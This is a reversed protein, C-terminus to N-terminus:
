IRVPQMSIKDTLKIPLNYLGPNIGETKAKKPLNILFSLCVHIVFIFATEATAAEPWAARSIHMHTWSLHELCSASVALLLSFYWELWGAISRYVALFAVLVM